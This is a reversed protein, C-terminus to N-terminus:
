TVYTGTGEKVGRGECFYNQNCCMYYLHLQTSSVINIRYMILLQEM